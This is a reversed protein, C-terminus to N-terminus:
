TDLNSCQNTNPQVTFLGIRVAGTTWVLFTHSRAVVVVLLLVLVLIEPVLLSIVKVIVLITGLKVARAPKKSTSSSEPFPWFCTLFLDSVGFLCCKGLMWGDMSGGWSKDNSSRSNGNSSRSSSSSSSSSSTSSTSTASTSTNRTSTIINSQRDSFNNKTQSGTSIKKFNFFVGPFTLFLDSVPWFCWFPLVHRADMWGDMSGGWSKDNSSRSNGNSSRSSSSSSSSSSSTASTSTNRTSTIINSQRDSFNNRTQSGTSTKKFNFFVGPFTLFLDSVLWFCWFPLM